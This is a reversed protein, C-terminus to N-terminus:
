PSSKGNKIAPITALCLLQGFPQVGADSSANVIVELDTRCSGDNQFVARATFRGIVVAEQSYDLKEQASNASASPAKQQAHDM